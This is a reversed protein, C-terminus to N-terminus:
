LKFSAPSELDPSHSASVWVSRCSTFRGISVESASGEGRVGPRERVRSRVWRVEPYKERSCDKTERSCENTLAVGGRAELSDVGSFVRFDLSWVGSLM